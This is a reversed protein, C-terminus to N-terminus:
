QTLFEIQILTLNYDRVSELQKVEKELQAAQALLLDSTKELGQAYRNTLIRLSEDAQAKATDTLSMKALGTALERNAKQLALNNKQIYVQMETRSKEIGKKQLRIKSATETGNFITWSLSIGVMYSNANFGLPSKDNFNYEGFANIRPYAMRKTMTLLNNQVEIGAKLALIDDRKESISPNGNAGTAITLRKEPKYIEGPSIGMLWSLYDSLTSINSNIEVERSQAEVLGTKVMLVDTPKAYGQKELNLTNRLVERYAEMGKQVARQAEYLFQLNTYAKKIEMVLTNEAYARQFRTAALKQHLAKRAAYIEFNFIPQQLSAKANFNSIPNPDNLLAPNFDNQTVSKQQLKFGFSNLPDNSYYASYGIQLRPLFGAKTGSIEEETLNIEQQQVTLQSNSKKMRSIADELSLIDQSRSPFYFLAFLISIWAKQM